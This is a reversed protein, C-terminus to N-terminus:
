RLNKQRRRRLGLATAIAGFTILITPTSPRGNGFTCSGTDAAAPTATAGGLGGSTAGSGPSGASGSGSSGGTGRAGGTGSGQGGTGANGGGSGGGGASGNAVYACGQPVTKPAIKKIQGRGYSAVYIAAGPGLRFSVPSQVDALDARSNPKASKRDAALDLTWVVHRNYDGFFYRQEFSGWGCGPPPVLGGTVSAESGGHVYSDQPPVCDTSPTMMKCDSLGGLPTPYNRKGENFPWGHNAGKGGVSIEEETGEGVDGIWLLDTQPDIWFRWPNRMGWTYIREDPPTMEFMGGTASSCGTVMAMGKLPNDSPVSGDLNVRLIKGNPKNLCAGYKNRPPTANSGTDGVSIYLQGKHIVLGGGDHNAPGELGGTVLPKSEITITGDAAARGRWVEHKSADTAGTSAYFYLNDADDRVVGLVGKESEVDAQFHAAVRKLMTGDRNVVAVDGDKMTIVGRGDSLFAVDTVGEVDAAWDSLVLEASPAGDALQAQAAAPLAAAIALSAAAARTPSGFRCVIKAAENLNQIRARGTKRVNKGM